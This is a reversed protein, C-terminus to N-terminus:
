YRSVNAQAHTRDSKGDPPTRAICCAALYAVGVWFIPFWIPSLTLSVVGLSVAPLLTRDTPVDQANGRGVGNTLFRSWLWLLAIAGAIGYDFLSDLIQNHANVGLLLDINYGIGGGLLVWPRTAILQLAQQYIYLRNSGGSPLADEWRVRNALIVQDNIVARVAVFVLMVTALALFLRVIKGSERRSSILQMLWLGFVILFALQAGRSALVLLGWIMTGLLIILLPLTKRSTRRRGLQAFILAAGFVVAISTYNSDLLRLDLIDTSYLTTRGLGEARMIANVAVAVGCCILAVEAYRRGRDQACLAYTALGAAMYIIRNITEPQWAPRAILSVGVYFASVALFFLFPKDGRLNRFGLPLRLMGGLLGLLLLPIGSWYTALQRQAVWGFALFIIALEPRVLVLVIGIALVAVAVPISPILLYIMCLALSLLLLLTENLSDTKARPRVTLSTAALSPSMHLASLDRSQRM